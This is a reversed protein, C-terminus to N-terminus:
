TRRLLACALAKMDDRRDLLARGEGIWEAFERGRRSPQRNSWENWHLEWCSYEVVLASLAPNALM